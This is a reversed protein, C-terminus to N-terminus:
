AVAEPDVADVPEVLVPDVWYQYLRDLINRARGPIQDVRAGVSALEFSM